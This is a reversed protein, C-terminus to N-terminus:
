RTQRGVGSVVIAQAQYCSLSCIQLKGAPPVLLLKETDATRLFQSKLESNLQETIPGKCCLFLTGMPVHDQYSPFAPGLSWCTFTCPTGLGHWVGPYNDSSRGRFTPHKGMDMEGTEVRGWSLVWLSFRYLNWGEWAVLLIPRQEEGASVGVM